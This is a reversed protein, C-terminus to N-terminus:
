FPGAVHCPKPRDEVSRDFHQDEDDEKADHDDARHLHAVTEEQVQRQAPALLQLAVPLDPDDRQADGDGIAVAHMDAHLHQGVPQGVTAAGDEEGKDIQQPDHQGHRQDKAGRPQRLEQLELFAGPEAQRHM